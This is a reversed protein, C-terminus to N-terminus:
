CEEGNEDYDQSGGMAGFNHTSSGDSYRTVQIFAGSGLREASTKSQSDIFSNDRRARQANNERDETYM